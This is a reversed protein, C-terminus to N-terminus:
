PLAPGATRALQNTAAAFKFNLPPLSRTVTVDSNDGGRPCIQTRVGRPATPAERQGSQIVAGTIFCCFRDASPFFVSVEPEYGSLPSSLTQVLVPFYLFSIVFILPFFLLKPVLKGHLLYHVGHTALSADQSHGRPEILAPQM